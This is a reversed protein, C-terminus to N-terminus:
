IKDDDRGIKTGLDASHLEWEECDNKQLYYYTNKRITKIDAIPVYVTRELDGTLDLVRVEQKDDIERFTYVYIKADTVSFNQFAPFHAREDVAVFDGQRRYFPRESIGKMRKRRYADTLELQEYDKLIDYLKEGETDYVEISFGKSTDGVYVRDEFVSFGYYDPVVDVHIKRDPGGFGRASGSGLFGETIKKEFELNEDFILIHKASKGTGVHIYYFSGIYMEGMPAVFDVQPYPSMSSIFTGDKSFLSVREHSNVVIRESQVDVFLKVDGGPRSRFADPEEGVKGFKKLLRFDDLAYVNIRQGDVIYLQNADVHMSSPDLIDPLAVLKEARSATTGLVIAQLAVVVTLFCM